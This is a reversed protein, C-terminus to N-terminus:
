QSAAPAQAVAPAAPVLQVVCNLDIQGTAGRAYNFSANITDGDKAEDELADLAALLVRRNRASPTKSDTTANVVARLEDREAKYQGNISNSAM